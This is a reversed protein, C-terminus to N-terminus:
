CANCTGGQRQIHRRREVRCFVYLVAHPHVFLSEMRADLTGGLRGVIVRNEQGTEESTRVAKGGETRAIHSAMKNLGLAWQKGAM